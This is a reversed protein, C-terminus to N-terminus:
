AGAATATISRITRRVNSDSELRLGLTQFIGGVLSEYPFNLFRAV